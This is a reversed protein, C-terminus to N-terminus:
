DGSLSAAFDEMQQALGNQIASRIVPFFMASLMGKSRFDLTVDIATSPNGEGLDISIVGAMEGADLEIVYRHPEDHQIANATGTFDRGAVETAWQYGTLFDGDFTPDWVRNVPGINEWTNPSQLAAWVEERPADVSLSHQFTASPM